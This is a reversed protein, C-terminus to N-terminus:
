KKSASKRKFPNNGINQSVSPPKLADDQIKTARRFQPTINAISDKLGSLVGTCSYSPFWFFLHLHKGKKLSPGSSPGAGKSAPVPRKQPLAQTQLTDGETPAVLM